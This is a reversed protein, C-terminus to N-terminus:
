DAEATYVMDDLQGWERGIVSLSTYYSVTNSEKSEFVLTPAQGSAPDCSSSVVTGGFVVPRSNGAHSTHALVEKQKNNKDHHKPSICVHLSLPVDKSQDKWIAGDISAVHRGGGHQIQVRKRKSHRCVEQALQSVVAIEDAVAKSESLAVNREVRRELLEVNRLLGDLKLTVQQSSTRDIWFQHLPSQASALVATSYLIEEGITPNFRFCILTGAATAGVFMSSAATNSSAKMAIICLVDERLPVKAHLPENWDHQEIRQRAFSYVCSTGDHKVALVINNKGTETGCAPVPVATRLAGGLRSGSCGCTVAQLADNLRHAQGSSSFWLLGDVLHKDGRTPVIAVVAQRDQGSIWGLLRTSGIQQLGRSTSSDAFAIRVLGDAFGMAILTNYDQSKSATPACNSLFRSYLAAQLNSSISEKSLCVVSTVTSEVGEMGITDKSALRVVSEGPESTFQVLQPPGLTKGTAVLLQRGPCTTLRNVGLLRQSSFCASCKKTAQYDGPQQLNAQRFCWLRGDRTLVYLLWRTENNEHQAFALSTVRKNFHLRIGLTQTSCHTSTDNINFTMINCSADQGYALIVQEAPDTQVTSDFCCEAQSSGDKGLALPIELLSPVTAIRTGQDM